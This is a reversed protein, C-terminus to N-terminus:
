AIEALPMEDVYHFYVRASTGSAAKAGRLAAAIAEDGDQLGEPWQPYFESLPFEFCQEGAAGLVDYLFGLDDNDTAQRMAEDLTAGDVRWAWLNLHPVTDGGTLTTDITAEILDATPHAKAFASFFTAVDSM